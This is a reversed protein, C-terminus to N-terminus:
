LAKYWDHEGVHGKPLLCPRGHPPTIKMCYAGSSPRRPRGAAIWAMNAPSGECSSDMGFQSNIWACEEGTLTWDSPPQPATFEGYKRTEAGSAPQSFGNWGVNERETIANMGRGIACLLDSLIADTPEIRKVIEKWQAIPFDLTVRLRVENPNSVEVSVAQSTM